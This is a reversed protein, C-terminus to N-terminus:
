TAIDMIWVVFGNPIKEDAQLILAKHNKTQKLLSLVKHLSDIAIKKESMYMSSDPYVFLVNDKIRVTEAGEAKPLQLDFGPQELFTSTVSYFIVLIFMVDILSTINLQIGKRKHSSLKM